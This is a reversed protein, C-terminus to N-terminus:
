DRARRALRTPESRGRLEVSDGLEWHDREDEAARELIAESALLRGPAEKALETLRAAENVPDGIVTYEFRSEEGINGAVAEGASIGIAAELEEVERPLREALARGAALAASAADDHRGPAGFVVLAADGEFKNVWGGHEDVVDVVVAFFRNLLEVVEEPPRKSALETSGVIDTFLVAVERAEGGLEIESDLAAKAVDEGVHRGFLDQIKERERLGAVMDNFGAQLQGIQSGDYVPVEVELNGERVEDIAKRVSVVPDAIARAALYLVWGGVVIAISGLVLILLALDDAEFDDDVFYSIGVTVLGVLPIATGLAFAMLTRTKIGPGLRREGIGAALARAAAPRMQRESILYVFACTSLGGFAVTVTVRVATQADSFFLNLCGFLVAALSWIFFHITVLRRPARLVIKREEPTPERDEKLWMRAERLRRVGWWTGIPVFVLLYAGAAIANALRGDADDEIGPLPLVLTAIAFVIVAGIMNAVVLSVSLTLEIRRVLVKGPTDPGPMLWTLVRNRKAAVGEM